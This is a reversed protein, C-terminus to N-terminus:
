GSHTQSCQVSTLLMTDFRLYPGRQHRSDLFPMLLCYSAPVTLVVSVSVCTFTPM